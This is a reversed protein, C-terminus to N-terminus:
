TFSFGLTLLYWVIPVAEVWFASYYKDQVVGSRIVLVGALVSTVLGALREAWTFEPFVYFLVAFSALAFIAVWKSNRIGLKQPLTALEEKDLQLDRIDFPLTIALILLFRQLFIVWDGQSFPRDSVWLPFLVTVGAWVLGIVFLKLGPLSRLGKFRRSGPYVYFLTLLFFPFVFILDTLRLQLAAYVLGAVMILNLVLLPRSSSRIWQSLVPHFRDMEFRQIFNYSLVTACFVFLALSLRTDGHHWLTLLVLCAASLAVHMNSFVYFSFARNLLNM